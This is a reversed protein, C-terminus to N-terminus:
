APSPTFDESSSTAMRMVTRYNPALDIRDILGNTRLARQMTKLRYCPVYLLARIQERSLPGHLNVRPPTDRM